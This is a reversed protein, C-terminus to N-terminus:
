QCRSGPHRGRGPPQAPYSPPISPRMAAQREAPSPTEGAIRERWQAMWEDFGSPEDFLQRVQAEGAPDSAADSLRRFTLTFDANGKAMADLLGQALAQTTRASPSCASSTACAPKTPTVPIGFAGPQEQAAFDGSSFLRADAAVLCEALRTLNWLAIRPQNAYAYRGLSTSRHSCPPPITRTWPSKLPRGAYDIENSASISTNDTNATVGHIFGVLRRGTRGPPRDRRRAACSLSTRSRSGPYHRAIVIDALRRM